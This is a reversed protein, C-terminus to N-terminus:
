HCQFDLFPLLTSAKVPWSHSLALKRAEERNIIHQGALIDEVAKAFDFKSRTVTVFPAFKDVGSVDTSVIARGCALYDFVKLLDNGRTYVNDLHPVIAVDFSHIIHTLEPYPVEPVFLANPFRELWRRMEPHDCYGVFLFKCRDFTGFLHELLCTDLRTRDLGGVFGIYHQSSPKPLFPPMQFHPDWNSFQKADTGNGMVIKSPHSFAKAVTENVCVLHDAAATLQELHKVAMGFGPARFDDSWDCVMKSAGSRLHIALPTQLRGASNVWLLYPRGGLIKDRLWRATGATLMTRAAAVHWQWLNYTTQAVRVRKGGPTQTAEVSRTVSRLYKQRGDGALVPPNFYIGEELCPAADLLHQFIAQNRKLRGPVWPLNSLNLLVMQSVV